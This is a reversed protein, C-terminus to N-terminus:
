ARVRDEFGESVRLRNPIVVRGTKALENPDFEGAGTLDSACVDIPIQQLLRSDYPEVGVLAVVM